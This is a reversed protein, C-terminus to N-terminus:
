IKGILFASKATGFRIGTADTGIAALMAVAVLVPVITATLAVPYGHSEALKEQIPLNFAALLNGLQYTVGPYLGRIADPSMESLHAPIVGWAGQVCVQMLFAGLCLLAATRSFAFIPVLPLGLVACFVITYRRGFRQSLTGFLLGGLIAGINYSVVIWRATASSLSAGHETTATLFTPYIDQTGHSMWNFATMLLVLYFFRRVIAADRLVDRIRTKTLRMQDQTAEWVESEKVRYRIILSILAPIISLGFMWRWSLGLWNMVVLSAVTALLYGVSYGEQLLGSFFGRRQRPVKEMALAAGLGWEGGMGIGYLLRLVVLVTFNPAFACLFGVVSYFAVDVMLPIRRGVRDAWLGFLLAGVPRMALTATTLFAVETKSHHFTEAIDAYVLVVLFYDFADMTWGLFAAIFSNRQDATLRQTKM